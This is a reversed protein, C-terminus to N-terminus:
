KILNFSDGLRIGIWLIDDRQITGTMHTQVFQALHAKQQQPPLTINKQLIQLLQAEGIKKRNVDNQDTLGDSGFYLMSGKPLNIHQNAFKVRDSQQGGVGRRDGSMKKIETTTPLAYYLSNKAGCFTIDFTNEKPVIHLVVADMGDTNGTQKQHLLDEIETHIRNLIEQPSHIKETETIKDLLTGGILTMFAGSVGHGTCDAGVLIYGDEDFARLWYFDGSVVDKPQNFIFHQPFITNMLEQTPLIADQITKAYTIGANIYENKLEIEKNKEALLKNNRRHRRNGRILFFVFLLVFLFITLIGAVVIIFYFQATRQENKFEELERDKKEKDYAIQLYEIEQLTSTALASDKYAIFSKASQYANNFDGLAEYCASLEAYMDKLYDKAKIKQALPIYKQILAIAENARNTERYVQAISLNVWVINRKSDVKEFVQLAELHFQLANKYEKLERYSMGLRNTVSAANEKENARKRILIAKTYSEIAQKYKKQNHYVQGLTYHCYGIGRLDNIREFAKLGREIYPIADEYKGQRNYIDGISQLNYGLIDYSETKESLKSATFFSELAQKYNSMNRHAVGMYNLAKAIRAENKITDRALKHAQRTYEVALPPDINRLKWGIDILVNFRTTDAHRLKPLLKKLSDIEKNQAFLASIGILFSIILSLCIRM